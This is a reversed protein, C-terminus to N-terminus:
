EWGRNTPVFKLPIQGGLFNVKNLTLFGAWVHAVRGRHIVEDESVFLEGLQPVENLGLYRFVEVLNIVGLVFDAESDSLRPAVVRLRTLPM